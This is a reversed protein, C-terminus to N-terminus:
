TIDQQTDVKLRELLNISIIIIDVYLIQIICSIVNNICFIIINNEVTPKNQVHITCYYTCILISSQKFVM